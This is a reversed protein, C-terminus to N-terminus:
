WIELFVSNQKIALSNVLMILKLIDILSVKGLTLQDIVFNSWYVHSQFDVLPLRLIKSALWDATPEKRHVAKQLLCDIVTEGLLEGLSSTSEIRGSYVLGLVVTWCFCEHFILLRHKLLIYTVIIATRSQFLYYM